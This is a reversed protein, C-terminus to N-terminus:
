SCIGREKSAEQLQPDTKVLSLSCGLLTLVPAELGVEESLVMSAVQALHYTSPETTIQPALVALM